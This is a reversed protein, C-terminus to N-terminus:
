SAWEEFAVKRRQCSAFIGRPAVVEPRKTQTIETRKTAYKPIASFLLACFHETLRTVVFM